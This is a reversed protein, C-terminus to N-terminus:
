RSDFSVSRLLSFLRQGGAAGGTEAVSQQQQQQQQVAAPWFFFAVPLRRPGPHSGPGGIQRSQRWTAGIKFTWSFQKEEVNEACEPDNIRPFQM